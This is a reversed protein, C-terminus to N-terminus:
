NVTISVGETVPGNKNYDYDWDTLCSAFVFSIIITLLFLNVVIKFM